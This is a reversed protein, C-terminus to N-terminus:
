KEGQQDLAGYIQFSMALIEYTLISTKNHHHRDGALKNNVNAKIIYNVDAANLLGAGGLSTMTGIGTCALGTGTTWPGGGTFSFTSWSLRGM